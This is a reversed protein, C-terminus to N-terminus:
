EGKKNFIIDAQAASNAASPLHLVITTDDEIDSCMISLEDDLRSVHEITVTRATDLILFM